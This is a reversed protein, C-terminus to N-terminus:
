FIDNYSSRDSSDNKNSGGNSNKLQWLVVTLTVVTVIVLTVFIVVTLTVVTVIVLTVFIVVTLTVIVLTM